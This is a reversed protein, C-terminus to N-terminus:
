WSTATSPPLWGSSWGRWGALPLTPDSGAALLELVLADVDVHQVGLREALAQAVWSKGVAKPGYLVTVTAM